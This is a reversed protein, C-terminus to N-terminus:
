FSATFWAWLKDTDVRAAAPDGADYAAYKVGITYHQAFQRTVLLDIEDGFDDAGAVADDASFDHYFVTYGFNVLKGSLTIYRDVLGSAPTALFMDSWGNFKHLTALPTAFGYAGDDSGLLEYGAKVTLSPWKVGFEALAYDADYRLGPTTSEQTAYELAYLLTPGSLPRAGSFSVGYTDIGNDPADDSELLYAYAGIRGLPVQYALNFLHDTSDIDAEDAFIRNRQDVFAYKLQLNSMPAYEIAAADFTQRDQRWGVSGVFREGDYSLLQRGLKMVLGSGEKTYQLMAQDLETTEPDAIVAYEGPNFGTPGVSFEDQGFMIRSDEVELLASFGNLDGSRYGLRSRLTLAAAEGLADDQEVDEHRLNFDAYFSGETIADALTSEAQAANAALLLCLLGTSRYVQIAKM